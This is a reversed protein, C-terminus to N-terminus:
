GFERAAVRYPAVVADFRLCEASGAPPAYQVLLSLTRSPMWEQKFGSSYSELVGPLDASMVSGHARTLADLVSQLLNLAVSAKGNVLMVFALNAVVSPDADLAAGKAFLAEAVDFEGRDRHAIALNTVVATDFPYLDFASRCLALREGACVQQVREILSQARESNERQSEAMMAAEHYDRAPSDVPLSELQDATYPPPMVDLPGFRWQLFGRVRGFDGVGLFSRIIAGDHTVCFEGFRNAMAEASRVTERYRELRLSLQMVLLLHLELCPELEHARRAAQLASAEDGATELLKAATYWAEDDDPFTAIIEDALRICKAPDDAVSEAAQRLWASRSGSTTFAINRQIEAIRGSRELTVTALLAAPAKAVIERALWARGRRVSGDFYAKDGYVKLVIPSRGTRANRLAYVVKEGGAGLQEGVVYEAGFVALTQGGCAFPDSLDLPQGNV